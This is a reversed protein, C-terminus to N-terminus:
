SSSEYGGYAIAASALLALIVGFERDAGDPWDFLLLWLLLVTAVIGLLAAAGNITVGPIPLSDGASFATAIAAVATILLFLDFTNNAEWGNLEGVWKLFLSIILVAGGVAAIQEGRGMRNVDM